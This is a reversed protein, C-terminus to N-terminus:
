GSLCAAQQRKEGRMMVMGVCIMPGRRSTKGNLNCTAGVTM